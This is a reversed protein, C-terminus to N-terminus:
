ARGNHQKGCQEEKDRDQQRGFSLPPRKGDISRLEMDGHIMQARMDGM